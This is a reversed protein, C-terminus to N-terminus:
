KNSQLTTGKSLSRKKDKSQSKNMSEKTTLRQQNSNNQIRRKLDQHTSKYIDAIIKKNSEHNLYNVQNILNKKRFRSDM